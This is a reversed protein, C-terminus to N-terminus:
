FEPQNLSELLSEVILAREEVPLSIAENILAKTDM